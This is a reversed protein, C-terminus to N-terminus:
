VWATHCMSRPFAHPINQLRRWNISSRIRGRLLLQLQLNPTTSLRYLHLQTRTTQSLLSVRHMEPESQSMSDCDIINNQSIQAKNLKVGCPAFLYIGRESIEWDEDEVRTEDYHEDESGVDEESQDSWELLDKDSFHGEQPETQHANVNPSKDRQGDAAHPISVSEM